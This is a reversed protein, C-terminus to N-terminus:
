FAGIYTSQILNPFVQSIFFTLQVSIHMNTDSDVEKETVNYYHRARLESEIYTLNDLLDGSPGGRGRERKNVYLNAARYPPFFEIYIANWQIINDFKRPQFQRVNNQYDQRIM